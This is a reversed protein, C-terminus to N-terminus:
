RWVDQGSRLNQGNLSNPMVNLAIRDEFLCICATEEDSINGRGFNGSKTDAAAYGKLATM